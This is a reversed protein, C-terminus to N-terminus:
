SLGLHVLSNGGFVLFISNAVLASVSSAAVDIDM